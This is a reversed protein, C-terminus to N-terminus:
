LVLNLQFTGTKHHATLFPHIVNLIIPVVKHRIGDWHSSHCTLLPGLMTFYMFHSKSAIVMGQLWISLGLSIGAFLWIEIIKYLLLQIGFLKIGSSVTCILDWIFTFLALRMLLFLLMWTDNKCFADAPIYIFCLKFSLPCGWRQDQPWPLSCCVLPTCCDTLWKSLSSTMDKKRMKM